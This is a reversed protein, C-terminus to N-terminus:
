ESQSIVLAAFLGGMFSFIYYASDTLLPDDFLNGLLLFVCWVLGVFLATTRIVTSVSNIGDSKFLKMSYYFAVGFGILAVIDTSLIISNM